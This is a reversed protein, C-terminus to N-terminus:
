GQVGFSFGLVKLGMWAGLVTVCLGEVISGRGQFRLEAGSARFRFVKSRRLKVGDQPASMSFRLQMFNFCSKQFCRNLVEGKNFSMNVFGSGSIKDV